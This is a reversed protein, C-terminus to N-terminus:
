EAPRCQTEHTALRLVWAGCINAIEADALTLRRTPTQRLARSALQTAARPAVENCIRNVDPPPVPQCAGAHQEVCAREPKALPNRGRTM